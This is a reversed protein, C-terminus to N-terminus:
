WGAYGNFFEPEWEAHTISSVLSQVGGDLSNLHAEKSVDAKLTVIHRGSTLGTFKTIELLPRTPAAFLPAAFLALTTFVSTLM